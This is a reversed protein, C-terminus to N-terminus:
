KNNILIEVHEDARNKLFHKYATIAPRRNNAQEKYTAWRCNEKCYNGNNDIREITTNKEGYTSSHILYLEYMDNKFEEFTEWLCKIGRGSYNKYRLSDIGSCRKKVSKFIKYFRTKSMGHTRFCNGMTEKNLCGCSLTNGSKISYGVTLIMNGCDCECLWLISRKKNKGCEKLVKLRGFKKGKLNIFRHGHKIM